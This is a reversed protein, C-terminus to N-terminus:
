WTDIDSRYLLWNQPELVLNSNGFPKTIFYIKKESRKFGNRLLSSKTDFASQENIAISIFHVAFSRRAARGLAALAEELHAFGAESKFLINGVILENLVKKRKNPKVQLIIEEAGSGYRFSFYSGALYDKRWATFGASSTLRLVGQEVTSGFDACGAEFYRNACFTFFGLPNCAKVYWRLDLIHQWKDKLFNRLSAEVPFGMLFDIKVHKNEQDLFALMRNFIGKGRYAPHVLSNGSQFSHWTKNGLTYPWYFFSQFGAVTAGDLAVVLLCKDKQFPHFYFKEFLRNFAQAEVGYERVFLDIVQARLDDTYWAISLEM